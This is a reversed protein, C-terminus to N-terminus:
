ARLSYLTLGSPNTNSHCLDSPIYPWFGGWLEVLNKDGKPQLYPDVTSVRDEPDDLDRRLDRRSRTRRSYPPSNGRRELEYLCCEGAISILEVDKRPLVGSTPPDASIKLCQDVWLTGM